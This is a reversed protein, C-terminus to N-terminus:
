FDLDINGIEDFHAMLSRTVPGVAFATRGVKSVPLIDRTTSTIFVEEAKLLDELGYIEEEVRLGAEAALHMVLQRTVGKLIGADLAPTHLVGAAVWFINSTTCEAVVGERTLLLAEHCGERRAEQLATVNNRNVGSKVNGKEKEPPVCIWIAAGDRYLQASPPVLEKGYLIRSPPGFQETNLNLPGVGRTIVMRLYCDPVGLADAMRRMEALIFADDWALDMGVKSASYRLRKLHMKEAFFVGNRTKIVEYILDGFLFGHDLVSIRAQETPVLMGDIMILLM